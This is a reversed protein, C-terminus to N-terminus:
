GGKGRERIRDGGGRETEGVERVCKREKKKRM